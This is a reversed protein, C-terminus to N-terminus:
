NSFVRRRELPLHPLRSCWDRIFAEGDELPPLGLVGRRTSLLLGQERPALLPRYCSLGQLEGAALTGAGAASHWALGEATISVRLHELAATRRRVRQDVFLGLGALLLLTAAVLALMRGGQPGGYLARGSWALAVGVAAFACRFQYLNCRRAALYQRSVRYLVPM